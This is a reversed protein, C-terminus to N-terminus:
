LVARRSTTWRTWGGPSFWDGRAVLGVKALHTLRHLGGATGHFTGKAVRFSGSQFVRDAPSPNGAVPVVALFDLLERAISADFVAENKGVIALVFRKPNEGHCLSLGDFHRNSSDPFEPYNVGGRVGHERRQCFPQQCEPFTTYGEVQQRTDSAPLLRVKKRRGANQQYWIARANKMPAQHSETTEERTDAAKIKAEFTGPHLAAPLDLNVRVSKANQRLM